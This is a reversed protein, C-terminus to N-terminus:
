HARNAGKTHPNTTDHQRYAAAANLLHLVSGAGGLGALGLLASAALNM